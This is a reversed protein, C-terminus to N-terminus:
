LFLLKNLATDVCFLKHLLIAILMLVMFSYLVSVKYQKSILFAILITVILDFIAFNFIFHSHVGDNPMGLINKYKCFFM